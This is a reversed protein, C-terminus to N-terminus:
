ACIAFPVDLTSMAVNFPLTVTPTPPVAFIACNVGVPAFM